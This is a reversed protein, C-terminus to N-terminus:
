RITERTMGSMCSVAAPRIASSTSPESVALPTAFSAVPHRVVLRGHASAQALTRSHRRLLAGLPGITRGAQPRAPDPTTHSTGPCGPGMTTM